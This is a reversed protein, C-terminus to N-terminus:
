EPNYPRLCSAARLTKQSPFGCVTQSNPELVNLKNGSHHSPMVSRGGPSVTHLTSQACTRGCWISEQTTRTGLVRGRPIRKQRMQQPTWPTKWLINEPYLVHLRQGVFAVQRFPSSSYKSPDLAKSCKFVAACLAAGEM